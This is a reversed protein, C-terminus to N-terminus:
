IKKNKPELCEKHVKSEHRKCSVQKTFLYKKEM